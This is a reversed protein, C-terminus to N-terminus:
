NPQKFSIAKKLCKINNSMVFSLFQQTNNLFIFMKIKYEHIYFDFIYKIRKYIDQHREIFIFYKTIFCIYEKKEKGKKYM